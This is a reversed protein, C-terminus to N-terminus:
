SKKKSTLKPRELKIEEICTTCDKNSPSNYSKKAKYFYHTANVGYATTQSVKTVTSGKPNNKIYDINRKRIDISFDESVPKIEITTNDSFLLCLSGDTEQERLHEPIEDLFSEYFHRYCEVIKLGVLRNINIENNKM